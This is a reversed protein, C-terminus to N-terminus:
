IDNRLMVNRTLGSVRRLLTLEERYTKLLREQLLLNEPDRELADNMEAVAEHILRLNAEINDRAEPPLREMEVDLEALLAARADQFGPGLHYRNGFSAQDFLMEPSAIVPSSTTDRVALYTVLSSTGALLVLAAAQALMPPLRRPAPKEIAEAIGPWLDRQPRIDTKLRKAAQLLKDDNM